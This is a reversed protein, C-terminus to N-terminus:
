VYTQNGLSVFLSPMFSDFPLFYTQNRRCYSIYVCSQSACYLICCVFFTQNTGCIYVYPQIQRSGTLCVYSCCFFTVGVETKPPYVEVYNEYKQSGDVSCLVPLRAYIVINILYLIHLWVSSNVTM